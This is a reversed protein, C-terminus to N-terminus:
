NELKKLLWKVEKLPISQNEKVEITKIGTLESIVQRNSRTSLDNGKGNLIIALIPIKRKKLAEVSLLTHNITGLKRSAVLIVPIKLDQILDIIFYKKTLPVFLGGAGEVIVLNYSKILQNFQKQFIKPNIKEGSLKASVLPALPFPFFRPNFRSFDSHIGAARCLKRIDTQSGTAVPKYPAVQMRLERLRRILSSAIYTKGVGTGTATVFIGKKM